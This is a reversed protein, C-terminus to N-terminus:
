KSDTHLFWGLTVHTWSYQSKHHKHWPWLPLVNWSSVLQWGEIFVGNYCKLRSVSKIFILLVTTGNLVLQFWLLRNLNRMKLLVLMLIMWQPHTWIKFQFWLCLAPRMVYLFVTSINKNHVTVNTSLDASAPSLIVVHPRFWPGQLYLGSIGVAMRIDSNTHSVFTCCISLSHGEVGLGTCM